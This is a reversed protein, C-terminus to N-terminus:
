QKLIRKLNILNIVVFILTSTLFMHLGTLFFLLLSCLNCLFYLLIAYLKISKQQSVILLGAIVIFIVNLHGIIEIILKM